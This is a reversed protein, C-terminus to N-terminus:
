AETPTPAPTKKSTKVVEDVVSVVGAMALDSLLAAEVATTPTIDGLFTFDVLAGDVVTEVAVEAPANYTTM